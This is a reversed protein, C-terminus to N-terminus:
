GQKVVEIIDVEDFFAYNPGKPYGLQGTPDQQPNPM